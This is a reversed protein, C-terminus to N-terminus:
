LSALSQDAEQGLSERLKKLLSDRSFPKQLHASDAIFGDEGNHELYGSMYVIKVAPYVRKLRQALETGRMRPMVVDTVLVDITEAAQEAKELADLGDKGEIVKYGNSRMFEGALERVADQDEALLVTGFSRSYKAAPEIESPLQVAETSQPLFIEFRTGENPASDVWIYGGSQKVVGYVTSLGLGTGKGLEKTTFFPEFIKAKTLDDMGCGTDSVALLVYRGPVTPPHSRAYDADLLVNRTSIALKGGKPMADRANVALNVLIQEIQSPDAKVRALSDGPRFSYEIEEGILMPLMKNLDAILANLDLVRPQLVQMRSFALLQRTLATARDAAKRMQALSAQAPSLTGLKMELLDTHGKIVTLLNNFDHAVGGALRGVAEMKQAQRFKEELQRQESVDRNVVVFKEVKGQQNLIASAGSEITHWSGDKHRMRYQVTGGPNTATAQKVAQQATYVDDTHVHDYFSTGALEEDTFGLIRAYAPSNYLRRGDPDVVAIMDMANESILRFLEERAVLQHRIRYIQFQQYITYLDFLLVLGVLGRTALSMHLNDFEGGAYQRLMPFSFSIIGLTLLLTVLIASSWLVWERREIRRMGARINSHLPRSM